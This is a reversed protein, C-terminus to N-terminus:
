NTTPLTITFETFEDKVSNVTIIGGYNQIIDNSLYLGIGSAEGTTKTTFFPDFIKDLITKEISIGTDRVKIFVKDEFRIAKLSLEPQYHQRLFKKEIAYISNNLMSMIVKSLLDPNCAVMIQDSPYDFTVQIGYDKIQQAYYTNVMEEDQKLINIIDSIVVGTTRDKLMEEMAKLTRTTNQGHVGVKQLNGRLMGLVDLTDEYNDQSMQDKEDDINAEIDKV